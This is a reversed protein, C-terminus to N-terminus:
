IYMGKVIRGVESQNYHMIEGDSKKFGNCLQIFNETTRPAIDAFLELIIKYKNTQHSFELFAYKKTKSANIAKCYAQEAADTYVKSETDDRFKFTHLAYEMFKDQDGIYEKDNLIVLPSQGHSYFVGKLKNAVKKLHEEWQTEFFQLFETTVEGYHTEELRNAVSVCRHFNPDDIRGAVTIKIPQSSNM